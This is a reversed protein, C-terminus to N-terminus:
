LPSLPEYELFFYDRANESAVLNPPITEKVKTLRDYLMERHELDKIDGPEMTLGKPQSWLDHAIEVISCQRDLSFDAAGPHHRAPVSGDRTDLFARPTEPIPILSPQLFIISM